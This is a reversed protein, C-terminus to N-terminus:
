DAIAELLSELVLGLWEYLGVVYARPDRAPLALLEAHRQEDDIGLRVALSLRLANVTKLWADVHGSAIRLPQAGDACRALDEIVLRAQELRARRQADETYRRFDAAAGPDDDYADPFLRAILPDDHDLEVSGGFEQAWQEFPDDTRAADRGEGLLDGLQQVLSTLLVVEHEELRTTWAGADAVFPTM